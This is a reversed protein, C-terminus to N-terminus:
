RGRATLARDFREIRATDVYYDTQHVIRGWRLHCELVTQNDYLREGDVDAADDFRALVAMRWPWGSVHLSRIEGRLGAAVFTLLFAEIRDRGEYRASWRHDGEHFELVADRAYGSLLPRHDGAALAAVDRRLKLLLVRVFLVRAILVLAMGVLLGLTFTM